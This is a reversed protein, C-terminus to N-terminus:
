ETADFNGWNRHSKKTSLEEAMVAGKYIHTSNLAFHYFDGSFQVKKKLYRVSQCGYNASHLM